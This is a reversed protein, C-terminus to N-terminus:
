VKNMRQSYNKLTGKLSESWDLQEINLLKVTHTCELASFTPRKALTKYELSSVPNIVAEKEILGFEVGFKGIALAFDYWSIIGKNSWHFIKENFSNKSEKNILQWCIKALNLTDTPCGRQDNIVSIIKSKESANKHMNLMKLCFNNGSPGYLWSTRLILTGPYKLALTEGKLKSSGYINLPNCKDNPLYPTKKSGDFVFDTSIQLLRGGYSSCTKALTEVGKANIDFAKKVEVEAKDVATFAATNIIWDPKIDLITKKCFENNQLNFQNRKLGIIEHSKQFFKELQNGLQGDIGTILIKM